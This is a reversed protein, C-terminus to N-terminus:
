DDRNGHLFAYWYVIAPTVVVQALADGLTWQVGAGWLPDGLAHRAPAAILTSAVPVGVAAIMVFTLFEGLTDLRFSRRLCRQLLWAAATGKATDIAATTIQFWFPTGPPAGLLLRIPWIAALLVWWQARPALLLASLLVADPLWFPSPIALAGYARESLTFALAYGAAFTAITVPAAIPRSMPAPRPSILACIIQAGHM